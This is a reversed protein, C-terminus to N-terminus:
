AWQRCSREISPVIAHCVTMPVLALPGVTVLSPADRLAALLLPAAISVSLFLSNLPRTIPDCPISSSPQALSPRHQGHHDKEKRRKVAPPFWMTCPTSWALIALSSRSTRGGRGQGRERQGEAGRLVFDGWWCGDGELEALDELSGTLVELSRVTYHLRHTLSIQCLHDVLLTTNNM